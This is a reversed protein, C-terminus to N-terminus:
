RVSQAIQTFHESLRAISEPVRHFDAAGPVDFKM